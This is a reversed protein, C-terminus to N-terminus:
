HIQQEMGAGESIKGIEFITGEGPPCVESIALWWFQPPQALHAPPPPMGGAGRLAVVRCGPPLAVRRVCRDRRPSGGPRRTTPSRWSAGIDRDLPEPHHGRRTKITLSQLPRTLGAARAKPTEPNVWGSWDILRGLRRPRTCVSWPRTSSAPSTANCAASSRGAASARPPADPWM